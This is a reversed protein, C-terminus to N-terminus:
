HTYYWPVIAWAESVCYGVGGVIGGSIAGAAWGPLTLTGVSATGGAIAGGVGGTVAGEVIAGGLESLSFGGDVLLNEMMTLESFNNSMVLEM